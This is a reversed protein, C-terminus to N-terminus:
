RGINRLAPPSVNSWTTGREFPPRRRPLVDDGSSAMCGSSPPRSGVSACRDGAVSGEASRGRGADSRGGTGAWDGARFSSPSDRSPCRAPPIPGARLDLVQPQPICGVLRNERFYVFPFLISGENKQKRKSKPIQSKELNRASFISFIEGLRFERRLNYAFRRLREARRRTREVNGERRRLTRIEILRLSYWPNVSNGYTM